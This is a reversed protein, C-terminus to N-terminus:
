SKINEYKEGYCDKECDKCVLVFKGGVRIQELNVFRALFGHGPNDNPTRQNTHLHALNDCECHFQKM